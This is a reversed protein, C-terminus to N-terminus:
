KSVRNVVLSSSYVAITDATQTRTRVELSDGDGTVAIFKNLTVHAPDSGGSGEVASGKDVLVGNLFFEVVIYNNTPLDFTMDFEARYLDLANELKPFIMENTALPNIDIKGAAVSSVTDFLDRATATTTSPVDRSTLSEYSLGGYALREDNIIWWSGGRSIIEIHDGLSSLTRQGDVYGTISEGAQPEIRCYDSAVLNPAGSLLFKYRYGDVSAAAPLTRTIATGTTIDVFEFTSSVSGSATIDSYNVKTSPAEDLEAQLGDIESISHQHMAAPRYPPTISTSM